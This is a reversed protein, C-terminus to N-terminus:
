SSPEPAPDVAESGLTAAFAAWSGHDSVDVGRSALEAAGLFADVRRGDDLELPAREWGPPEVLALRRLLEESCEYLECEIARGDEDQVLAPWSQDVFYLRYRPATRAHDCFRAGALSGHGPQGSAFTGYFAFLTM